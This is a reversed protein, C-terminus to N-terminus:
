RSVSHSTVDASEETLLPALVPVPASRTELNVSSASVGKEVVVVGLRSVHITYPADVGTLTNGSTLFGQGAVIYYDGNLVPFNLSRVRGSPLFILAPDSAQGPPLWNTLPLVAPDASTGAPADEAAFSGPAPWQGIFLAANLYETGLSRVRTVEGRARGELWSYGRCCPQTGNASPFALAVPVRRSLAQFRASRLEAALVEALGRSGTNSRARQSTLVGTAVVVFLISMSIILEALTVGPRRRM